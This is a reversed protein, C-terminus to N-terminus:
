GHFVEAHSSSSAHTESALLARAARAVVLEENTPIVMVRVASDDASITTEGTAAANRDRDLVIGLRDLGALIRARVSASNEGIGATFVIADAGGLEFFYAGIWHRASAVFM